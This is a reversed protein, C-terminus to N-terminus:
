PACCRGLSLPCFSSFITQSDIMMMKMMLRMMIMMMMMRPTMIDMVMMWSTLTRSLTSLLTENPPTMVAIQAMSTARSDYRSIIFSASSQSSFYIPVGLDVREGVGLLQVLVSGFYGFAASASM